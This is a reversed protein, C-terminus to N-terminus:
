VLSNVAGFKQELANLLNIEHKMLLNQDLRVWNARYVQWAELPTLETDDRLQWTIQRLGPFASITISEPLQPISAPQGFAALSTGLANLVLAYAGVAVSPEGREIRHLTVRSIGAAQAVVEATLKQMKRLALIHRGLAALADQPRQDSVQIATRMQKKNNVFHSFLLYYSVNNKM